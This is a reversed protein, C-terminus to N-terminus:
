GDNEGGIALEKVFVYNDYADKLAKSKKLNEENPKCLLHHARRLEKIEDRLQRLALIVEQNDAIQHAAIRDVKRELSGIEDVIESIESM